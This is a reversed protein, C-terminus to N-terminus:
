WNIFFDTAIMVHTTTNKNYSPGGLLSPPPPILTNAYFSCWIAHFAVAVPSYSVLHYPAPVHRRLPKALTGIGRCRSTLTNAWLDSVSKWDHCGQVPLHRPTSPVALTHCSLGHFCSTIPLNTPQNAQEHLGERSLVKQVSVSACIAGLEGATHFSLCLSFFFVM